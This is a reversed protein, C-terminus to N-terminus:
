FSKHHANSFCAFTLINQKLNKAKRSFNELIAWTNKFNAFTLWLQFMKEESFYNFFQCAKQCTPMGIQFIAHRQCMLVYFHFTLVNAHCNSFHCTKPVNAHQCTFIFHQCAKPKYACMVCLKAFEMIQIYKTIFSNNLAM